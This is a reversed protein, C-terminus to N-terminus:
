VTQNLTLLLVKGCARCHHRRRTFTFRCDCHMCRPASADPVWVPAVKGLESISGSVNVSRHLPMSGEGASLDSHVGARHQSLPLVLNSHSATQETGTVAGTVCGTRDRDFAVSCVSTPAVQPSPSLQSPLCLATPRASCPETSPQQVSPLQLTAAPASPLVESEAPFSAQLGCRLTRRRCKTETPGINRPVTERSPGLSLNLSCPRKSSNTSPSQLVPAPSWSVPRQSLSLSNPRGKESSVSLVPRQRPRSFGSVTDTEGTVHMANACAANAETSDDSQWLEKCSDSLDVSPKSLGLLSNPRSTRSRAGTTETRMVVQEMENVMDLKKDVGPCVDFSSNLLKASSDISENTVAPQLSDLQSDHESPCVDKANEEEMVALESTYGPVKAFGPDDVPTTVGKNAPVSPALFREISSRSGHRDLTSSSTSLSEVDLDCRQSHAVCSGGGMTAADSVTEDSDPRVSHVTTNDSNLAIERCSYSDGSEEFNKRLSHECENRVLALAGESQPIKVHSHGNDTLTSTSVGTYLHVTDAASQNTGAMATSCFQSEDDIGHIEVSVVNCHFNACDRVSLNRESDDASNVSSDDVRHKYCEGESSDDILESFHTLLSSDTSTRSDDAAVAVSQRADSCRCQSTSLEVTKKVAFEAEASETQFDDKGQVCDLRVPKTINSSMVADCKANLEVDNGADTLSALLGHCVQEGSTCESALNVTCLKCESQAIDQEIQRNEDSVAVEVPVEQTLGCTLTEAEVAQEQYFNDKELVTGNDLLGDVDM